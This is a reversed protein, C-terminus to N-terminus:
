GGSVLTFLRGFMDSLMNKGLIDFRGTILLVVIFLFVVVIFLVVIKEVVIKM